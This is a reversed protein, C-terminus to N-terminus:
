QKRKYIASTYQELYKFKQIQTYQAELQTMLYIKIQNNENNFMNILIHKIRFTLQYRIYYQPHLDILTM